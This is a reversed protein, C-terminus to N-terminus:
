CYYKKFFKNVGMTTSKGNPLVITVMLKYYKQHIFPTVKVGVLKPNTKVNIVKHYPYGNKNLYNHLTKPNKGYTGGKVTTNSCNKLIYM